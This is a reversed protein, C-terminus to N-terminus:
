PRLEWRNNWDDTVVALRVADAAFIRRDTESLGMRAGLLVLDDFLDEKTM